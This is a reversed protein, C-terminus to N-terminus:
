LFTNRNSLSSHDEFKCKEYKYVYLSGDKIVSDKSQYSYQMM